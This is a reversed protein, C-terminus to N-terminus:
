RFHRMWVCLVLSSVSSDHKLENFREKRRYFTQWGATSPRIVNGMLKKMQIRRKCKRYEDRQRRRRRFQVIHPEFPLSLLWLFIREFVFETTACCIWNESISSSESAMFFNRWSFNFLKENWVCWCVAVCCLLSPFVYFIGITVNRCRYMSKDNLCCCACVIGSRFVVLSKCSLCQFRNHRIYKPKKRARADTAVSACVYVWECLHESIEVKEERKKWGVVSLTSHFTFLRSHPLSRLSLSHRRPIPLFKCNLLSRSSPFLYHSVSNVTHIIHSTYTGEATTGKVASAGRKINWNRSDFISNRASGHRQRM